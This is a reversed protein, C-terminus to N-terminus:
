LNDVGTTDAININRTGGSEAVPGSMTSLRRGEAAPGPVQILAISVMASEGSRQAPSLSRRIGASAASAKCAFLALPIAQAMAAYGADNPHIHDGSDFRPQMRDPRVTDRLAADVDIVTDYPADHRIWGNIAQRAAEGQATFARDTGGFPPLTMGYIRLGHRRGKLALQKLGAIVPAALTQADPIARGTSQAAMTPEGIDNIGGLLLLYRAGPVDLVDADFRRVMSEGQGFNGHAAMVQNGDIGANIVPMACGAHRLRVALQEPYSSGATARFGNTISDGMAVVAAAGEGGKVDVRTLWDNGPAQAAGAFTADGTHDGPESILQRYRADVHWSAPEVAQPVYLSIALRDGAHTTFAVADTDLSGNAPLVLKGAGHLAVSVLSAPDIADDEGNKVRALTIRGLAVATAGYRNDLHLRVQTGDAGVTVIERVTQDHLAPNQPPSPLEINPAIPAQLAAAGWGAVWHEGADARPSVLATACLAYMALMGRAGTM